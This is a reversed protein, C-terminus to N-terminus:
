LRFAVWEGIRGSFQLTGPSPFSVLRLDCFLIAFLEVIQLVKKCSPFPLRSCVFSSTKRWSFRMAISSSGRSSILLSHSLVCRAVKFFSLIFSTDIVNKWLTMNKKCSIKWEFNLCKKLFSNYLRVFSLTHYIFEHLFIRWFMFKPSNLHKCLAIFIWRM